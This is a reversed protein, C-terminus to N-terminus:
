STYRKCKKTQKGGMSKQPSGHRKKKMTRRKKQVSILVNPKLSSIIKNARGTAEAFDHNAQQVQEAYDPDSRYRSMRKAISAAQHVDGAADELLQEAYDEDSLLGLKHLLKSLLLGM